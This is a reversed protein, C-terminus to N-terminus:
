LSGWLGLSYGRKHTQSSYFSPMKVINCLLSCTIYYLDWTKLPKHQIHSYTVHQVSGMLCQIWHGKRIELSDLTQSPNYDHAASERKKNIIWSLVTTSLSCYFCACYPWMCHLQHNRFLMKRPFFYSRGGCSVGPFISYEMQIQFLGTKNIDTVYHIQLEYSNECSGTDLCSRTCM